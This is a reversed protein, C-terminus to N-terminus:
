GLDRELIYFNLGEAREERKLESESMWSGAIRIEFILTVDERRGGQSNPSRTKALLNRARLVPIPTLLPSSTAHQRRYSETCTQTSFPSSQLGRRKGVEQINIFVEVM